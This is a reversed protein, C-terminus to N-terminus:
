KIKVLLYSSGANDSLYLLRGGRVAQYHAEFNSTEGQWRNTLVMNWNSVTLAGKYEQQFTNM